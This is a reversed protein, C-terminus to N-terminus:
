RPQCARGRVRIWALTDSSAGPEFGTIWVQVSGNGKREIDAVTIGAGADREARDVFQRADEYEQASTVFRFRRPSLAASEVATLNYAAGIVLHPATHTPPSVVWLYDDRSGIPGVSINWAHGRDWALRFELGHGIAKSFSQGAALKAPTAFDVCETTPPNTPQPAERQEACLLPIVLM